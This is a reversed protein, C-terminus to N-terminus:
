RRRFVVTATGGGEEAHLIDVEAGAFAATLEGPPAHFPGPADAGVSSLVTVIALGGAALRDVMQPYLAPQRFRQCVIVDAGAPDAPLGADLDTVRAGIRDDLGLAKAALELHDIAVPSVDLAVVRLGRDALWLVQRGLGCAIDIAIGSDPVLHLLEPHDDFVEPRLPAAPPSSRYRDNWRTADDQM